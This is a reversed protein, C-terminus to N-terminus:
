QIDSDPVELFPINGLFWGRDNLAGLLAAHNLFQTGGPAADPYPVPPDIAGASRAVLLSAALWTSCPLLKRM